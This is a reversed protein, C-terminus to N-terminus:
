KKRPSKKAHFINPGRETNDSARALAAVSNIVVDTSKTAACSSAIHLSANIFSPLHMIERLLHNIRDRFVARHHSGNSIEQWVNILMRKLFQLWQAGREVVDV